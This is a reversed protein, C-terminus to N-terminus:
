QAERLARRRAAADKKRDTRSQSRKEERQPADTDGGLHAALAEITPYRFMAVLSVRKGIKNSLRQNAQATLLSNAGLDFINDQRGVKSIELLDKWVGAITEELDNSPPVYEAAPRAVERVPAPLANRDIKGNPTLPFSDMPMFVSPIMYEPLHDRLHARIENVLQSHDRGSSAPTNAYDSLRGEHPPSPLSLRTQPGHARHCLVADFRGPDGSRSWVITAEYDPHLNFLSDPDVGRGATEARVQRLAEADPASHDLMAERASLVASLRANELNELVLVDPMDGLASEIEELTSLQAPALLEAGSATSDGVHLTVDYRFATMENEGAGRKLNVSLASLRPVDRVLAHFYAEAIVLESDRAIRAEVRSALTDSTLHGPAQNLEVLTHFADLHAGSRVDGVYIQGGNRVLESAKTLVDTLYDASPFYQAVSNIIVTDLSQVDIDELADAPQQMLTVKAREESTLEARITDLAHPSLDTAFYHDVHPAVAFLVMGTGCGIELVRKPELALINSQTADRWERMQAVPIPAGTYSDNWGAINFRPDSVEGAQKYADDWLGQWHNVNDTGTGTQGNTMIYAVLQAPGSDARAVVTSQWIDPHRGLVTEIEGLEIRYGNVKVQHDLRGLFDLAGDDDYRALDGTRYLRRGSVIPDDFFREATLDDRGLYGPVVGAGGICLEGAEGIPMLQNEADLIRAVTNAIPRGISIPEGSTVSATTSWITTETPGYMNTIKGNVGLLLAEALDDPLAEGGLMLHQLGSLSAFAEDDSILMRAMSPTCQMHTVAHTHINEAVSIDAMEAESGSGANAMERLRNLHPLNDLVVDPDIGFDILCGIETAGIAKLQEVMNLAKEPSGFLGATDFYREFAHEMLAAMDEDTFQNPDFEAEGDDLSPRKFAPFMWPAVKVLDYSSKLYNCFPERALERATETDDCVFTHLMVSVNGEGEFGAEARAERYAALKTKLDDIDQGLMNTLVNAGLRGASKFTEVNGASAIWIPPKEQIPRPLVGVSIMNGEGNEVEIEEGRWLKFVTEISEVMVERRREYNEPMLAFDNAHWGSAFSLGIRGNSLQDVVAWDEAVRIPNHLPLVVSGARLAVNKTVTALAATTVAPNPYIGGFAHFHREPTWVTSFGNEDAYKAGELLMRYTEGPQSEGQSSSFYFLGFDMPKDSVHAPAEHSLSSRDSEAQIVTKFGRTLTWFIELVSIDFSVSTVALWVGPDTGIVDDMGTFFNSVNQHAVMVGKPRGTSGSTFIVYALDSATAGSVPMDDSVSADIDELCILEAGHRPLREALNRQTLLVKAGSDELMIDLRERPYVPDLPVYAAGAKMVGLLGAVLDLSREACVAVFDGPVIGQAQLTHAIQNARQELGRYTLSQGQFVLAVADPTRKVQESFLDHVCRDDAYPKVPGQAMQLLQEREGVPVISLQALACEPYTTAETLVTEVRDALRKLAGDSIAGRDYVWTCADGSNPVNLTIYTGPVISAEDATSIGISLPTVDAEIARLVEYRTVIDRAYTARKEQVLLEAKTAERLAAFTGSLDVDMRMPTASAYAKAADIEFPKELLFDFGDYEGTRAIYAALAAIMEPASASNTRSEMAIDPDGTHPNIQSLLPSRMRALRRTWFREHKTLKADIDSMSQNLESTSALADGIKVGLMSPDVAVGELTTLDSFKLIGDAAGIRLSRTEVAVIAGAMDAVGPVLQVDNPIYLEGGILLKARCMWNDDTGLDLGRVLAHIDAVSQSFDILGLGPSDSRLHFNQQPGQKDSSMPQGRDVENQLAETLTQFSESGAEVCKIGLSFATEDSGIDFQRQVLVEGSDVSASMEHWTIAHRAQQDMIAWATANFGAYNPLPSDHYNIARRSPLALTDDSLITHNIISFLFEFAGGGFWDAQNDTSPTVTINRSQAWAAVHPCDSVIGHITNGCGLWHEACAVLLQGTGVFAGKCNVM